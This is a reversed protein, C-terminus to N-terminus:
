EAEKAVSAAMEELVMKSMKMKEEGVAKEAV